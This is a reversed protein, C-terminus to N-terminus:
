EVTGLRREPELAGGLLLVAGLGLEIHMHLLSSPSCRGRSFSTVVACLVREGSTSQRTATTRTLSELILDRM